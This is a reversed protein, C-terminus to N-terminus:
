LLGHEVKLRRVGGDISKGTRILLKTLISMQFHQAHDSSVRLQCRSSCYLPKKDRVCDGACQKLITDQDDGGQEAHRIGEMNCSACRTTAFPQVGTEELFTEWEYMCLEKVSDPMVQTAPHSSPNPSSLWLWMWLSSYTFVGRFCTEALYMIAKEFNQCSFLRWPLDNDSSRQQLMCIYIYCNAAIVSQKDSDHYEGCSCFDIVDSFLQLAHCHNM